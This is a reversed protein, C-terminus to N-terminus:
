PPTMPLASFRWSVRLNLNSIIGIWSISKLSKETIQMTSVWGLVPLLEIGLSMRGWITMSWWGSM